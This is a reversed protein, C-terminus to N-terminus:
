KVLRFTKSVLIELFYGIKALKLIKHTKKPSFLVSFAQFASKHCACSIAVGKVGM